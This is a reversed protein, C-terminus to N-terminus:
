FNFESRPTVKLRDVVSSFSSNGLLEGWIDMENDGGVITMSLSPCRTTSLPGELLHVLDTAHYHSYQLTFSKLARFGGPPTATWAQVIARIIDCYPPDMDIFGRTYLTLSELTKLGSLAQVFWKEPQESCVYSYSYPVNLVRIEIHKLHAFESLRIFRCEPSQSSNADHITLSVLSSGEDQDLKKPVDSRSMEGPLPEPCDCPNILEATELDPCLRLLAIWDSLFVPRRPCGTLKVRRLQRWPMVFQVPAAMDVRFHAENLKLTQDKFAHIAGVAELDLSSMGTQRMEAHIEVRALEGFQAVQTLERMYDLHSLATMVIKLTKIRASFEVIIPFLFFILCHGTWDPAEEGLALTHSGGTRHFWRQVNGSKIFGDHQDARRQNSHGRSPISKFIVTDWFKPESFAIERWHSCVQSIITPPYSPHIRDCDREPLTLLFIDRLIEYPVKDQPNPHTVQTSQM